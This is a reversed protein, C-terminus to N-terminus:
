DRSRIDGVNDTRIRAFIRPFRLSYNSFKGNEEWFYPMNNAFEGYYKCRRNGRRGAAQCTFSKINKEQPIIHNRRTTVAGEEQRSNEFGRESIEQGKEVIRAFLGPLRHTVPIQFVSNSNLGRLRIKSRCGSRTM